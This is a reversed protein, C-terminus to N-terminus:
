YKVSRIKNFGDFHFNDDKFIEMVKYKGKTYIKSNEIFHTAELILISAKPKSLNLNGKTEVM